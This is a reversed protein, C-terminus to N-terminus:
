DLISVLVIENEFNLQFIEKFTSEVGGFVVLNWWFSIRRYIIGLMNDVPNSM